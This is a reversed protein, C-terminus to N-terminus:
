DFDALSLLSTLDIKIPIEYMEVSQPYTESYIRLIGTTKLYWYLFDKIRKNDAGWNNIVMDGINLPKDFSPPLTTLIM